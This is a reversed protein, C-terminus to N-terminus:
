HNSEKPLESHLRIGTLKELQAYNNDQDLIWFKFLDELIEKQHDEYHIGGYSLPLLLQYWLDREKEDTFSLVLEFGAKYELRECAVLCPKSNSEEQRPCTREVFSPLDQLAKKEQDTM